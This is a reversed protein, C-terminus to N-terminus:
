WIAVKLDPHQTCDWLNALTDAARLPQGIRVLPLVPARNIFAGWCGFSTATSM